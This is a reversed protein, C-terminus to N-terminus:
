LFGSSPPNGIMPTNLFDLDGLTSSDPPLPVAVTEERISQLLHVGNLLEMTFFWQESDSLLEYLMVLNPHLIDSLARFERKFRALSTPHARSLTKLAIIGNRKRDFAEYVIGYSGQGLQRLLSFQEMGHFGREARTSM